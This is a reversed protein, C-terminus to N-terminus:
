LNLISLQYKPLPEQRNLRDSLLPLLEKFLPPPLLKNSPVVGPRDNMLDTILRGVTRAEPLIGMTDRCDKSLFFTQGGVPLCAGEANGLFQRYGAIM